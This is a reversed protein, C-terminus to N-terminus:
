YFKKKITVLNKKIGELVAPLITGFGDTNRGTSYMGTGIVHIDM